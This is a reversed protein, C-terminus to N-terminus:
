AAECSPARCRSSTSVRRVRIEISAHSRPHEARRHGCALPRLRRPQSVAARPRLSAGVQGPDLGLAGALLLRVVFGGVRMRSSAGSMTSTSAAAAFAPPPARDAVQRAVSAGTTQPSVGASVQLRVMASTRRTLSGPTPTSWVKTVSSPPLTPTMVCREPWLSRIVNERDSSPASTVLTDSRSFSSSACVRASSRPPVLIM